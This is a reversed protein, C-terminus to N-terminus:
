NIVPLSRLLPLSAPPWILADFHALDLQCVCLASVQDSGRGQEALIPLNLVSPLGNMMERISHAALLLRGPNADDRLVRLACEYLAAIETAKETLSRHVLQQPGTMQFVREGGPGM